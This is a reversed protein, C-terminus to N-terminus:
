VCQSILTDIEEMHIADWYIIQRGQRRFQDIEFKIGDSLRWSEIAAVILATAGELMPADVKMWLKHDVPNLRSYLTLPHSHVIPSYVVLGREVLCATLQCAVLYAAATGSPYHTYPTALYSYM